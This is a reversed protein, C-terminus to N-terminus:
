IKPKAFHCAVFHEPEVESLGPLAQRCLTQPRPCRPYFPCGKEWSENDTRSPAEALRYEQASRLLMATYPHLPNQILRDRSAVEMIMGALMVLIRQAIAAIIKLDHSIFLYALGFEERLKLFLGLIQMQLSIDLNSVPEDCILIKPETVLARCICVRQRQGASFQSPFRDLIDASLGTKELLETMRKRRLGRGGIRHVVMPESLIDAIRMTPELSLLPDQFIMQIDKHRSAIGGSFVVRGMFPRLLGTLIKALTTKGCGSEGVLGLVEHPYLTFSVERLAYMPRQRLSFFGERAAYAYSLRETSILAERM